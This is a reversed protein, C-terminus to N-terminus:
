RTLSTCPIFSSTNRKPLFDIEVVKVADLVEYSNKVNEMIEVFELLSSVRFAGRDLDKSVQKPFLCQFITTSSVKSNNLWKGSVIVFVQCM